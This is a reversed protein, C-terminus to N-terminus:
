FLLRTTRNIPIERDGDLAFVQTAGDTRRCIGYRFPHDERGPATFRLDQFTACVRDTEVRTSLLAPLVAFARFFGFAPANWLAAVDKDSVLNISGDGGFRAYETWQAKDLPMFSADIRAFFGADAAITHMEKSLLDVHALRYGADNQLVLTWHFPSLPRPQVGAREPAFGQESAFRQAEKLAIQKAVAQAGLYSLVVVCTAIAVRHIAVWRKLVVSAILGVLQTGTLILDIIFTTGWDFRHWSFPALLMVGFSNILDFDIHLALGVGALATLQWRRQPTRFLKAFVWGLLLAWLPLMVFSHTIGRRDTLTAIDSFFGLLADIDPIVAGLTVVLVIQWPRLRGHGSAPQRLSRALVAGSLAHTIPDMFPFAFFFVAV